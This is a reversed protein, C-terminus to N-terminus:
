EVEVAPARKFHDEVIAMADATPVYVTSFPPETPPFKFTALEGDQWAERTEEDIMETNLDAKDVNKCAYKLRVILKDVAPVVGKSCAKLHTRFNSM